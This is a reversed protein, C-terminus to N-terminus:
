RRSSTSPSSTRYFFPYRYEVGVGPIVNATYAKKGDHSLAFMHSLAKTTPVVGLIQYTKPDIETITQDLETSVYLIKGTADFRPQHPRVGHPFAITHVIKRSAIDIVSISSGDTGARGVGSDGYLPVFATKGDPSVAIEHGTVGGVDITDIQKNTAPDILSISHDKQNAVLLLPKDTVVGAVGTNLFTTPVLLSSLLIRRFM